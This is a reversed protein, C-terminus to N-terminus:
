GVEKVVVDTPGDHVVWSRGLLPGSNFGPGCHKAWSAYDHWSLKILQDEWPVGQKDMDLCLELLFREHTM